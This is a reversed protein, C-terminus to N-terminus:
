KKGKPKVKGGRKMAPTQYYRHEPDLGPRYGAPAPVFIRQPAVPAVPAAPAAPAASSTATTGNPTVAPANDRRNPMARDREAQQRAYVQAAARNRAVNAPSTSTLGRLSLAPPTPAPAKTVTGINKLGAGERGTAPAVTTAGTAKSVTMAQLPTERGANAKVASTSIAKGAASSGTKTAPTTSKTATSKSQSSGGKSTGGGGGKSAGGGKAMKKPPASGFGKPKRAM